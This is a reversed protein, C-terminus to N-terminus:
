DLADSKEKLNRSRDAEPSRDSLASKCLASLGGSGSEVQVGGSSSEDELTGPSTM